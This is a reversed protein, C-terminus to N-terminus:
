LINRYDGVHSYIASHGSKSMCTQSLGSNGSIETQSIQAHKFINKLKKERLEWIFQQM